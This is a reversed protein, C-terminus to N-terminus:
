PFDYDLWTGTVVLWSYIRPKGQRALWSEDSASLCRVVKAVNLTLKRTIFVVQRPDLPVLDPQFPPVGHYGSIM